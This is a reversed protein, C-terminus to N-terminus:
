GRPHAQKYVDRLHNKNGKAYVQTSAIDSHGMMEQVCKIDAGNELLHAAFSHRFSHPTIEADIRAKQAYHKILKWFGQRSMAKGSCNVFVLEIAPDSILAGRGEALYKELSNRAKTGFPIVREKNNERCVICDTQLNVDDMRLSILETVRIGTAYLLELMAKDRLEKPDNGKPQELLKTVEEVTMIKPLTREVRPAHLQESIDENIIREKYLFHYYAKISAVNRSITAVKFRQGELFAIYEQLHQLTVQHIGEIERASLYVKLKNLDRQYSLRTSESSKKVNKLYTLFTETTNNMIGGKLLMVRANVFTDCFKIISMFM